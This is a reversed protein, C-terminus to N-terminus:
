AALLILEAFLGHVAGTGKSGLGGLVGLSLSSMERGSYYYYDVGVETM